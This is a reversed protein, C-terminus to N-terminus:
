LYELEVSFDYHWAYFWQFVNIRGNLVLILYLVDRSLTLALIRM